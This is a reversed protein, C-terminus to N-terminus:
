SIFFTRGILFCPNARRWIESRRWIQHFPRTVWFHVKKSITQENNRNKCIKTLRCTTTECLASRVFYWTCKIKYITYRPTSYYYNFQLKHLLQQLHCPGARLQVNVCFLLQQLFTFSFNTKYCFELKSMLKGSTTLFLLTKILQHLNLVAIDM